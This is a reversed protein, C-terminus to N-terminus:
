LYYFLILWKLVREVEKQIIIGKHYLELPFTNNFIKEYYLLKDIDLGDSKTHEDKYKQIENKFKVIKVTIADNPCVNSCTGCGICNEDKIKDFRKVNVMDIADVPCNEKCIGCLVCGGDVKSGKNIRAKQPCINVCTNCLKCKNPDYLIKNNDFKLAGEPCNDACLGCNVCHKLPITKLDEKIKCGHFQIYGICGKSM